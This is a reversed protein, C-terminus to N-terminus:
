LQRGILLGAWAAAICLIVSVAVNLLAKAAEGDQLLNLTDLSFTSFTTFAGLLGVLLVGRWEPGLSLRENLLVFLFGMAASGVVNVALTGYPFATGLRAYVWGSTWYRLVAGFAGGVAVAIVQPM